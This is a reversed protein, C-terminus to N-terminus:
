KAIICVPKDQEFDMQIGSFQPMGTKEDRTFVQIVKDDRSAVLIWKGDPTIYFNRPHAATNVYGKYKLLGDQDVAFTAMGDNQLRYTSYIFKGDPSLHIDAGGDQPAEPVSICQLREFRPTGDEEATISYTYVDHNLECVVYLLRAKENFEMHRPGAGPNMTVEIDPRDILFKGEPADEDISLLHVCDTGLDTALIWRGQIGAKRCIDTPLEKVQHIHAKEQRAENPGTGYYCIDQVNEKIGGNSDISFVSVSGTTYNATLVYPLGEVKLVYCPARGIRDSMGTLVDNKFSYIHPVRAASPVYITGDPGKCLYTPDAAEISNLVKFGEGDFSAEYLHEGYTGILLEYSAQNCNCSCLLLLAAISTITSIHKM